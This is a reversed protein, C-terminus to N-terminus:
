SAARWPLPERPLPEGTDEAAFALHRLLDRSTVIGVIEDAANVVPLASVEQSLMAEAAEAIAADEGVTVLRYSAVQFVPHRRHREDDRKAPGLGLARTLNRDSVLAVIAGRDTVLLHHIHADRMRRLAQELDVDVEVTVLDVSMVSGVTGPLPVTSPTGLPWAHTRPEPM